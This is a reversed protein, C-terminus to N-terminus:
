SPLSLGFLPIITEVALSKGTGKEEKKKKKGKGRGKKKLCYFAEYSPHGASLSVVFSLESGQQRLQRGREEEKKERKKEWLILLSLRTSYRCALVGLQGLKV